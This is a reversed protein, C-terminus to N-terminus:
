TALPQRCIYLPIWPMLYPETRVESVTSSLAASIFTDMFWWLLIRLIYQFSWCFFSVLFLSPHTLRIKFM